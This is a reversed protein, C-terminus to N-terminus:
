FRRRQQRDDWYASVIGTAEQGRHQLAHLCHYAIVAAQPHNYVGVVACQARIEGDVANFRKRLVPVM